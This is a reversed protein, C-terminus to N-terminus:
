VFIMKVVVGLVAVGVACMVGIIQNLKTNIVAFQVNGEALQDRQSDVTGQLKLVTDCPCKKEEGM